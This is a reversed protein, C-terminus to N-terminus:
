PGEHVKSVAYRMRPCDNQVMFAAEIKSFIWFATLPPQYSRATESRPGFLFVIAIRGPFLTQVLDLACVVARFWILYWNDM